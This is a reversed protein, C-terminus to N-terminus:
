KCGSATMAHKVSTIFGGEIIYEVAVGIIPYTASQICKGRQQFLSGEKLDEVRSEFAADDHSYPYAIFNNIMMINVSYEIGEASMCKHDDFILTRTDAPISHLYTEERINQKFWCKDGDANTIFGKRQIPSYADAQQILLGGLIISALILAKTM